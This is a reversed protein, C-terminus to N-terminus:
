FTYKEMFMVDVTTYCKYENWVKKAIEEAENRQMKRWGMALKIFRKRSIHKNGLKIDLSISNALTNSFNYLSKEFEEMSVGFSEMSEIVGKFSELEMYESDPKDASKFYLKDTTEEGM